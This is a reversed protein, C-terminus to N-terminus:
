IVKNLVRTIRTINKTNNNIRVARDIRHGCVWIIQDDATIVTQHEKEFMNVKGNILLDSIKQTGNMGLPKFRDGSKWYRLVM